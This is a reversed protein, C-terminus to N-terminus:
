FLERFQINAFVNSAGGIGRGAIVYVDQVSGLETYVLPLDRTVGTSVASKNQNTAPLYTSDITTGGAITDAGNSFAAYEAIHGISTWSIAGGAATLTTPNLIQRFLVHDTGTVILGVREIQIQGRNPVSNPGTTKARIALIPQFSGTPVSKATVLNDIAHHHVIGMDDGGESDVSYCFWKLTTASAAADTNEIEYRVPLSATTMYPVALQGTGANEYAVILKGTTPSAFGFRYRGVGLWELDVWALWSTSTFDLTLGSPGSGDFPDNWESQPVRVDVASGTVYSRRVFYLTTGDYELFVGNRSSFYGARQRVNAKPTGFTGTFRVLQSRGPVYRHFKRTAVIAKAGSATGGTQLSLAAENVTSAVAGTGSVSQEMFTDDYGYEFSKFGLVQLQSVRQRGFADLETSSDPFSIPLGISGGVNGRDEGIDGVALKVRQFSVQGVIDEAPRENVVSATGQIGSM